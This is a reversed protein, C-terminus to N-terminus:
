NGKIFCDELDNPYLVTYRKTIGSMVALGYLYSPELLITHLSDGLCVTLGQSIAAKIEKITM